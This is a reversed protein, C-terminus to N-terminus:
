LAWKDLFVHIKKIYWNFLDFIDYELLDFQLIETSPIKSAIEKTSKNSGLFM